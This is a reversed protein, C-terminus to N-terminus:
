PRLALPSAERGIMIKAMMGMGKEGLDVLEGKDKRTVVM